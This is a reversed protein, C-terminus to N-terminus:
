YGCKTLKFLMERDQARRSCFTGNGLFFFLFFFFFELAGKFSYGNATSYCTAIM